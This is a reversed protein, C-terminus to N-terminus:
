DRPSPSTYLLCDIHQDTIQFFPVSSPTPSTQFNFATPLAHGRAPLMLAAMTVSLRHVKRSLIFSFAFSGCAVLGFAILIWNRWSFLSFSWDYSGSNYERCDNVMSHALSPYADVHQKTLNALKELDLRARKDVVLEHSYDAELIRLQPTSVNLATPILTNGFFTLWTKRTLSTSFFLLVSLIYFKTLLIVILIVTQLDRQCSFHQLHLRVVVLFLQVVPVQVPWVTCLIILANWFPMPCMQWCFM